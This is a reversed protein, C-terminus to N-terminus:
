FGTPPPSVVTRGGAGLQHVALSREATRNSGFRFAGDVGSFGGDDNLRDVPFPTGAKWERAIRVALLVVDYGLSALRYPTKGYRARYRTQLQGFMGDDVSAFWAGNMATVSALGPEANWLETGMVQGTAGAKRLLPVAVVAVRGSDAILVADFKQKALANVAATIGSARDYSQMTVVSGGAAEAVRILTGSATRGYAGQPVLGAFRTLGKSRAYRVVREISQAPQFGLLWVNDASVSTDNSFAVVPVGRAAALGSVARVDDGLLPGLILANGEALAKTAAAAAGPGTDYTTVRLSRDKTDALALVAANAISQGVGANPGTIPVLLAVRHREKDEPLGQQPTPLATTPPAKTPVPASRRPGTTTCAGLLMAVLLALITAALNKGRGIQGSQGPDAM